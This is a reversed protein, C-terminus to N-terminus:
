MMVRDSTMRTSHLREGRAAPDGESTFHRGGDGPALQRVKRSRWDIHLLRAELVALILAREDIQSAVDLPERGTGLKRVRHEYLVDGDDEVVHRDDGPRARFRAAAFSAADGVSQLSM